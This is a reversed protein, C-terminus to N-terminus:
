GVALHQEPNEKEKKKKEEKEMNSIHERLLQKKECDTFRALVQKILPQYGIGNLKAIMKLDEILSKQLRISIMQLEMVDDIADEDVGKAVRVFNEDAGLERSDWAEDTGQIKEKDNM